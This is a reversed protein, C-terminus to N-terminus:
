HTRKQRDGSAIAQRVRIDKFLPNKLNFGLYTYQFAPYRFKNYHEFFQPYANYQDPTLTM